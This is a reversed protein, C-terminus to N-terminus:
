VAPSRGMLVDDAYGSELPFEGPLVGEVAFGESAYLARAPANHGPVRPTIRSAGRRRAGATAARLLARGAGRGRVTGDVAPGQIQRVHGNSELPTPRVLKVHGVPRGELEAVLFRLPRNGDHFFPGYPPRPRPTVAHVPSWTRRDLEGLAEGDEEAAPRVLPRPSAPPEPSASSASSSPSAPSASM